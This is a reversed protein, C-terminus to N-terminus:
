DKNGTQPDKFNWEEADKPTVFTEERELYWGKYTDLYIDGNAACRRWLEQCTAKHEAETTRIFRAYVLFLACTINCWVCVFLFFHM